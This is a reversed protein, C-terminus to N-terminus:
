AVDFLGHRHIAIADKPVLYGSLIPARFQMEDPDEYVLEAGREREGSCKTSPRFHCQCSSNVRNGYHVHMSEVSTKQWRCAFWKPIANAM